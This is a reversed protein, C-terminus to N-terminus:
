AFPWAVRKTPGYPEPPRGGPEGVSASGRRGRRSAPPVGRLADVEGARVDLLLADVLGVDDLRVAVREEGDRVPLQVRDVDAARLRAQEVREREVGPQAM